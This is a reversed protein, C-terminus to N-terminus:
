PVDRNEKAPELRYRAAGQVKGAAVVRYGAQVVGELRVLEQGLNTSQSHAPRERDVLGLEQAIPLLTAVGVSAEGHNEKWRVFFAYWPEMTVEYIRHLASQGGLFEPINAVQLIGGLTASWEEYSAKLTGRYAPRGQCIWAQVLVLASWVLQSRNATVWAQLHPHRFAQREWPCEIQADLRIHVSRRAIERSLRVNNGTTVWISRVPLTVTTNAGLRRDRWTQATLASALTPSDLVERVNDILIAEDMGLLHATIRKRWEEDSRTETIVGCPSIFPELVAQALLSKGTGPVPSDILHNPTPGSILNRAVPLLFLAIAHARDSPHAFPFDGLLEKIYGTARAIDERTPAPPVAELRRGPPPALFTRTARDYGPITQLHGEPSFVPVEVVRALIPLPPSPAALLNRVVLDPPYAAVTQRDGTTSVTRDWAIMRALEHRLENLGCRKITTRGEFSELRVIDGDRWFLTPPHNARELAGWVRQTLVSLDLEDVSVRPKVPEKSSFAAQGERRVRSRRKQDARSGSARADAVTPSVREFHRRRM